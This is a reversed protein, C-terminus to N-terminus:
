EHHFYDGAAQIFTRSREPRICWRILTFGTRLQRYVLMWELFCFFRFESEQQFTFKEPDSEVFSGPKARCGQNADM